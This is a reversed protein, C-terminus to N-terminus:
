RVAVGGGESARGGLPSLAPRLTSGQTNFAQDILSYDDFDVIGNGDVDGNIWGTKNGNFGADIRSYDDFDVVGNFDTDGYYTHKVLVTTGDITQGNFTTMGSFAIHDSGEMAGLTTRANPNAAAASSRIGFGLWNGGNYGQNIQEQVLELPYGEDYDLIMAGDSVDFLGNSWIQVSGARFVFGGTQQYIAGGDGILASNLSVSRNTYLAASGTSDENVQLTEGISGPDYFVRTLPSTEHIVTINNFSGQSTQLRVTNVQGFRYDIPTPSMGSVRGLLLTNMEHILVNAATDGSDDLVLTTAGSTNFVTVPATVGNMGIGAVGGVTVTDAGATGQITLADQHRRVNLTDAGSGHTINVASTDNFKWSINAPALGTLRGYPAGGIVVDDLTAIRALANGADNVTINNHNPPNQLTIDGLIGQAGNAAGGITYADAGGTTTLNLNKSTQRVLVTDAASGFTGNVSSVDLYRYLIPAPALGTWQGLTDAGVTVNQLTATRATTDPGNNINLTSTSPTNRVTVAQTISQVGNTLNGLNVIDNGASSNIRLDEDNRLVNVTDSAGGTIVTASFVDSSDFRIPSTSGTITNYGGVEDITFTRPVPYGTDDITLVTFAPTNDITLEGLIGGLGSAASSGVTIIDNSGTNNLIFTETSRIFTGTDLGSGCMLNVSAIDRDDWFINAPAMGTLFNFNGSSNVNWTRAGTDPGNDIYLLTTAPDNHIQVDGSIARVGNTSNGINVSDLGGASNILVGTGGLTSRLNVLDPGTGTTLTHSETDIAYGYGGWGPRDFRSSTVTFTNAAGNDYVFVRDNDSGGNVVTNGTINGLNRLAFSFDIVDDGGGGNLTTPKGANDELRILDNGNFGQVTISNTQSFPVIESYFVSGGVTGVTVLLGTPVTSRKIEIFDNQDSAYIQGTVTLTNATQNSDVLMNNLTRPLTITYGYVQGLFQADIDSILNREGVVNARGSNMLISPHWPLGAANTAATGPGEWLHGADVNTMTYEIPGGGINVAVLNGPRTDNPDDINTQVLYNSILLPGGPTNDFGLAHGLEHLATTYLDWGAVNAPSAVGMFANTLSTFESDDNISPDVWHITGSNDFRITGATPKGGRWDTAVGDAILTGPLNATGLTLLYTNGGNNYNFNTIVEEWDVIARDVAFRAQAAFVGFEANFGDTDGAGPGTGRNTWAITSL